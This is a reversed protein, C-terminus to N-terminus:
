KSSTSAIRFRNTAGNFLASAGLCVLAVLVLTLPSLGCVALLGLTLGALGFMSQSSSVFGTRNSLLFAAGFVLVAVSLLIMPVVGLLALIGLVIGCLGGLFEAGLGGSWEPARAGAGDETAESTMFVGGEIWIAAGLVIVAIAALRESFVGALGAIALALTAVAGIFECLAGNSMTRASIEEQHVAQYGSQIQTGNM